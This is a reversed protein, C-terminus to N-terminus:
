APPIVSTRELIIINTKSFKERQSAALMHARSQQMGQAKVSVGAGL